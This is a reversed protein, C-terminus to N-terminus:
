HHYVMTPSHLNLDQRPRNNKKKKESSSIIFTIYKDFIMVNLKLKIVNGTIRIWMNAWLFRQNRFSDGAPLM